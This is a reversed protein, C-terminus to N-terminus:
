KRPPSSPIRGVNTLRSLRVQRISESRAWSQDYKCDLDACRWGNRTPILRLHRHVMCTYPPVRNLAQFDALLAVETETWPATIISM